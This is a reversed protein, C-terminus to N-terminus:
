RTFSIRLANLEVALQRCSSFKLAKCTSGHSHANSNVTNSVVELAGWIDNATQLHAQGDMSVEKSENISEVHLGIVRGNRLIFPAGSSGSFLGKNCYIHHRTSGMYRVWEAGPLVVDVEMANFSSVSCHYVKVDSEPEIDEMSIPIPDLASSGQIQLIAYDMTPNTKYITAVIKTNPFIIAGNGAREVVSTVMYQLQGNQLNHAATM